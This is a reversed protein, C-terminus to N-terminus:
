QTVEAVCRQFDSLPEAGEFIPVAAAAFARRDSESLEAWEAFVGAPQAARFLDYAAATLAGRDREPSLSIEVPPHSIEVPEPFEVVTVAPITPAAKVLVAPKQKTVPEKSLPKKAM